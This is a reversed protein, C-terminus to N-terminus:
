ASGDRADPLSREALICWANLDIRQVADLCMLIDRSVAFIGHRALLVAAAHRNIRERQNALGQVISEALENSHAPAYHLVEITGFKETAELVPPIAREAACFPMVHFPHAHIIAEVEPYNRYVGLHAKGERSFNQNSLVEDTNISGSIITAPDVHWHQRAGSYRPTIYITEGVRMSINGGALDTLRLEFLMRGVYVMTEQPTDFKMGSGGCRDFLTAQVRAIAKIKIGKSRWM